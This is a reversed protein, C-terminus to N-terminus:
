QEFIRNILVMTEMAEDLTPSASHEGLATNVAMEAQLRFGPKFDTDWKSIEAPNLTRENRNQYVAKELPRMEWRKGDTVITVAWPGPGKWVGDYVARDGSDFEVEALVMWPNKPDWSIIPRVATVKGRGFFRIYDVLHISNAYMWNKVVVEPHGISAAVDLSQQDQVHIYRRGPNKELDGAAAQTSSLFRRNLGVIVKRGKAKAATYIIDADELNYGPPKELFVTWPYEFCEKSVKSMATEFVAVIVLDAHTGRYLDAVSDYVREIGFEAALAEAKSRTRSYIGALHVGPVNKFARAHERAMNGAGVITVKCIKSDM